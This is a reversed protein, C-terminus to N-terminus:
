VVSNALGPPKTISNDKSVLVRVLLPQVNHIPTSLSVLCVHFVRLLPDVDLASILVLNVPKSQPMLFPAMPVPAKVLKYLNASDPIRFDIDMQAFSVPSNQM